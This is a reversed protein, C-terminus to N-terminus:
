SCLLCLPKMAMFGGKDPWFWISTGQHDEEEIPLTNCILSTVPKGPSYRQQYEM